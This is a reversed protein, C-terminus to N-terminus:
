NRGHLYIRPVREAIGCLIEYANTQAAQAMEDAGLEEDGQRGLLVVEDGVHCEPADTVDIMTMDM